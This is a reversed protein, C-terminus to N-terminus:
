QKAAMLQSGTENSAWACSRKKKFTIIVIIGVLTKIEHSLGFLRVRGRMM